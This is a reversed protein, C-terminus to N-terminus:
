YNFQFIFFHNCVYEKSLDIHRSLTGYNNREIHLEIDLLMMGKRTRALVPYRTVPLCLM